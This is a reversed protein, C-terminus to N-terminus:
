ADVILNGVSKAQCALIVGSAKEEATLADEVEMTVEGERLPVKCRGCTGVRCEFDIVVGIAEAAELVSQDPALLGAKNSKTFNVSSQASPAAAPAGDTPQLESGPQMNNPESNLVPGGKPPAFDETKVQDSPVKLTELASRVAEMMPLPGCLHIRHSAVDAVSAAIFDATMFGVPGDWDQGDADTVISVVQVNPHRRALYACEERFILESPTKAGYLFHIDHEYSRDTLSRLVSMMPTVGVGGAILVIGKAEKGTFFFSGSPATVELLDGTLAHDHLHRSELGFQERKVTLEIYDRQTPSSSITYSRRVKQGDIEATLTAYQGPLFTFPIVGLNPEMLRFTKVTPTEDFIAKIRLVGAWPRKVPAKAGPAPSIAAVTGAREPAAVPLLGEGAVPTLRQVLGSIRRLRAWHLVLGAGLALALTVMTLIHFWSLDRFGGDMTMGAREGISAERKFWATAISAPSQDANLAQLASSGSKVLSLGERVKSIAVQAAPLDDVSLATQLDAYGAGIQQAGSRLRESAEGSVLARAHPTLPPLGMLSPYFPKQGPSGCCGMLPPASGDAPASPTMMGMGGDKGTPGSAPKKAVIPADRTPAGLPTAPAGDPHHAEHDPLPPQAMAPLAGGGLALLVATLPLARMVIPAKRESVRSCAGDNM